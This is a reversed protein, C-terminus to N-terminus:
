RADVGLIERVVLPISGVPIQWVFRTGLSRVICILFINRLGDHVEHTAYSAVHLVSYLRLLISFIYETSYVSIGFVKELGIIYAITASTDDSTMTLCCHTGVIM